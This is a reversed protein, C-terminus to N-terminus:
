AAPLMRTADSAGPLRAVDYKGEALLPAASNLQEM